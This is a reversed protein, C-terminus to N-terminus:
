MVWGPDGIDLCDGVERYKNRYLLIGSICDTTSAYQSMDSTDSSAIRTLICARYLEDTFTLTLPGKTSFNQISFSM